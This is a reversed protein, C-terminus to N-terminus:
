SPAGQCHRAHHAHWCDTILSRYGLFDDIAKMLERTDEGAVKAVYYRVSLGVLAEEIEDFTAVTIREVPHSPLPPQKPV